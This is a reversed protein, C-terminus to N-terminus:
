LSSLLFYPRYVIWPESDGQYVGLYRFTYLQLCGLLALLMAMAPSIPPTFAVVFIASAWCWDVWYYRPWFRLVSAGIFLVATLRVSQIHIAQRLIPGIILIIRQAWVATSACCRQCMQLVEVFYQKASYARRSVVQSRLKVEGWLARLRRPKWRFKFM